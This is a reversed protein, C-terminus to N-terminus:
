QVSGLNRQFYKAEADADKVKKAPNGAYVSHQDALPRTVVAGAAVICYDPIRAGKLLIVGTGIFCYSGIHVPACSQRNKGVDISHTLVQSRFGALTTFSGVEIKDICDLIHRSTISSENGLILSSNRAVEETFHVDSRGAMGFVWNFTGIKANEGLRLESLNRVITFSGIRAGHDLEVRGADIFSLGIRASPAIKYGFFFILLWRKLSWPFFVILALALKRLM